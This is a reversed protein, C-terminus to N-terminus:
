TITLKSIKVSSWILWYVSISLFILDCFLYSCRIMTKQVALWLQLRQELLELVEWRWPLVRPTPAWFDPQGPHLCAKQPAPASEGPSVTRSPTTIPSGPSWACRSPCSAAPRAGVQGWRRGTRRATTSATSMRSFLLLVTVERWIRALGPRWNWHHQYRWVSLLRSPPQVATKCVDPRDRRRWRRVLSLVLREVLVSPARPSSARLSASPSCLRYSQGRGPLLESGETFPTCLWFVTLCLFPDGSLCFAMNLLAPPWTPMTSQPPPLLPRPGHHPSLWWFLVCCLSELPMARQVAWLPCLIPPGVM